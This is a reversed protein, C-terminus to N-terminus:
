LWVRAAEHVDDVARARAMAAQYSTRADAKAADLQRRDRIRADSDRLAVMEAMQRRVDRLRQQHALAAQALREAEACRTQVESRAPACPGALPAASAPSVMAM